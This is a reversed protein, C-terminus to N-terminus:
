AYFEGAMLEVMSWCGIPLVTPRRRESRRARTRRRRMDVRGASRGEFWAAAVPLWLAVALYHTMAALGAASALELPFRDGGRELWRESADLAWVSLLLSLAYPRLEHSYRILAPAAALFLATLAATPLDIRRAVWRAFLAVAAAGLIANVLRRVLEGQGAALLVWTLLPEVPPQARDFLLGAFLERLGDRAMLTETIEDLWMSSGGLGILRFLLAVAFSAPVLWRQLSSRAGGPAAGDPSRPSGATAEAEVLRM